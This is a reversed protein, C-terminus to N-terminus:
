LGREIQLYSLEHPLLWVITMDISYQYGSFTLQFFTFHTEFGLFM